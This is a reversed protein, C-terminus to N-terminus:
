TRELKLLACTVRDRPHFKLEFVESGIGTFLSVMYPIAFESAQVIYMYVSLTFLYHAISIKGVFIFNM